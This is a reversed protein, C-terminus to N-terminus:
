LEWRKCKLESSYLMTSQLNGWPESAMQTMSVGTVGVACEIVWGGEM